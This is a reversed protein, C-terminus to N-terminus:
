AGSGPPGFARSADDLVLVWDNGRGQPGPPTFTRTGQRAFEGAERAEGTRPDFWWARVREGSLRSLDVEVPRGTPLYLFAYAGDDARSAQVHDPGDPVNGAVLQQDPIRTLFPRSLLLRRVNLMQWAGPLDMAETWPTRASSIPPHKPSYFQWIDHCGYTHGFAGAFLAWYAAQRVDYDDFWGMEPKWNVPHDEYRPEGDLCPKPPSLSYDHAIMQYNPADKASHGSQLMNCALWAEQHLWRSSSAGGQPHYTILHRGGDGESLGEAMARWVAEYGDPNRDGGLIWILNPADRYRQGLFRGYVRANGPNFIVPGIGWERRVKDGWTPLMGIYLGRRRAAELVFDVHDWYDNQPGERVDPRTPDNDLLPRHGYANAAGLGDFEALCVAQIVTFGKARRNELYREAEERDLRHFLEWATDGLWLFPTGDAHELFRCNASVRLPGHTYDWAPGTHPQIVM